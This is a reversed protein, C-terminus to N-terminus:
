ITFSPNVPTYMIQRNQEFCLNHSRTLVAEIYQASIHFIDSNKIQFNVSKKPHFKRYMQIPLNEYHNGMDVDFLTSIFCILIYVM